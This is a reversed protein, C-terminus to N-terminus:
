LWKEKHLEEGIVTWKGFVKGSLDEKEKRGM